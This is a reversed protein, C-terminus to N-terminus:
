KYIGSMNLETVLIGRATWICIPKIEQMINELFQSNQSVSIIVDPISQPFMRVSFNGLSYINNYINIYILEM